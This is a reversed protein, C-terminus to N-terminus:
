AYKERLRLEKVRTFSKLQKMLMKTKALSPESLSHNFKTYGVHVMVPAIEKIWKVFVDSDFDMIPEISILKNKWPLEAMCKYREITPPANSVKYDRNTEITAGLILNKPYVDLFEFYRKPNKTLFLFYSSPSNKIGSIVKLIWEKPVWDGFLDGMDCAFVYQKRFSKKLEYEALKPKFGDKYKEMHKLRTEALNRAWCYTCDHLCGIVPNWTKSIVDFM